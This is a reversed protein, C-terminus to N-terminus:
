CRGGTKCGQVCAGTVTGGHFRGALGALTPTRVRKRVPVPLTSTIYSSSDEYDVYNAPTGSPDMGALALSYASCSQNLTLLVNGDLLTLPYVSLYGSIAIGLTGCLFQLQPVAATPNVAALLVAPQMHVAIFAPTVGIAALSGQRTAAVVAGNPSLAASHYSEGTASQEWLVRILPLWHTDIASVGGAHAVYAVGAGDVAPKRANYLPAVTFLPLCSGGTAVAVFAHVQGVCRRRCLPSPTGVLM